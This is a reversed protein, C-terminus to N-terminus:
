LGLAHTILSLPYVKESVFHELLFAGYWGACKLCVKRGHKSCKGGKM